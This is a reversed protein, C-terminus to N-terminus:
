PTAKQTKTPSAKPAKLVKVQKARSVKIVLKKKYTELVGTVRVRRGPLSDIDPFKAYVAPVLAATFGITKRKSFNIFRLGDNPGRKTSVVTGEVAIKNGTNAKLAALDTADLTPIKTRKAALVPTASLALLLAAALATFLSYHLSKM